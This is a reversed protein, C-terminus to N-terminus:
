SWRPPKALFRRFGKLYGKAENWNIPWLTRRQNIGTKATLVKTEEEITKM